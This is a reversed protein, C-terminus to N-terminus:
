LCSYLICPPTSPQIRVATGVTEILVILGFQSRHNIMVKCSVSSTIVAGLLLPMFSGLVLLCAQKQETLCVDRLLSVQFEQMGRSQSCPPSNLRGAALSPVSGTLDTCHNVKWMKIIMQKVTRAV